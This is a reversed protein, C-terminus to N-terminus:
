EYPYLKRYVTKLKRRAMAGTNVRETQSAGAVTFRFGFVSCWINTHM